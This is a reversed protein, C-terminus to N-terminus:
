IKRRKKIDGDAVEAEEGQDDDTETMKRKRHTDALGTDLPMGNNSSAGGTQDMSQLAPAESSVGEQIDSLPSPRLKVQVAPGSQPYETGPTGDGSMNVGPPSSASEATGPVPSARNAEPVRRGQPLNTQTRGHSLPREATGKTSPALTVYGSGGYVSKKSLDKKLEGLTGRQLPNSAQRTPQPLSRPRTKKAFLLSSSSTKQSPASRHSAARSVTEPASSAVARSQTSSSGTSAVDPLAVSPTMNSPVNHRTSPGLPTRLVNANPNPITGALEATPTDSKGANNISVQSQTTDLTSEALLSNPEPVVQSPALRMVSNSRPTTPPPPASTMTVPQPSEGPEDSRRFDEPAPVPPTPPTHPVTSVLAVTSRQDMSPVTRELTPPSSSQVGEMPGPAPPHDDSLREDIGELTNRVPGASTEEASIQTSDEVNRKTPMNVASAGSPDSSEPASDTDMASDTDNPTVSSELSLVPAPDIEMPADADQNAEFSLVVDIQMPVQSPSDDEDDSPSDDAADNRANGMIIDNKDPVENAVENESMVTDSDSSVSAINQGALDGTDGLQMDEDSPCDSLESDTDSLPETGSTIVPFENVEMANTNPRGADLQVSPSLDLDMESSRDVDTNMDDDDEDAAISPQAAITPRTHVQGEQTVEVDMDDSDNREAEVVTAVGEFIDVPDMEVDPGPTFINGRDDRETEGTTAVGESINVSNMGVVPAPSEVAMTIERDVSTAAPQPSDVPVPTRKDVSTVVSVSAAVPAPIGQDVPSEEVPLPDDVAVSTQQAPFFSEGTPTAARSVDDNEERYAKDDRPRSLINETSELNTFTLLLKELLVPPPTNPPTTSTCTETEVTLERSSGSALDPQSQNTKGTENDM